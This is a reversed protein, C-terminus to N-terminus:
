PKRLDKWTRQMRAVMAQLAARRLLCPTLAIPVRASRPIRRMAMTPTVAAAVPVLKDVM